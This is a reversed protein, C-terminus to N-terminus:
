AHQEEKLEARFMGIDYYLFNAAEDFLGAYECAHTQSVAEAVRKGMGDGHWEGHILRIRSLLPKSFELIEGEAGECDMKLMDAKGDALVEEITCAEVLTPLGREVKGDGPNFYGDTSTLFSPNRFGVQKESSGVVAKKILKVGEIGAVNEQLVEFNESLPEFCIVTSSPWLSKAFVAFAGINAGVDLFLKADPFREKARRLGYTDGAVVEQIIKEDWNGGQDSAENRILFRLGAVVIERLAMQVGWLWKLAICLVAHSSPIEVPEYIEVPRRLDLRFVQRYQM